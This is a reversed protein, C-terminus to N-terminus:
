IALRSNKYIKDSWVKSTYIKRNDTSSIIILRFMHHVVFKILKDFSSGQWYYGRSLIKTRLHTVTGGETKTTTNSALPTATNDM